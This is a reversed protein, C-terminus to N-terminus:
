KTEKIRKRVVDFVAAADEYCKMVKANEKDTMAAMLAKDAEPSNTEVKADVDSKKRWGFRNQMMMEMLRANADPNIGLAGEEIRDTWWGEAWKQGENYAKFFEENNALYTNITPATIDLALCIQAQSKGEKLLEIVKGCMEKDYKTPRGRKKHPRPPKSSTM